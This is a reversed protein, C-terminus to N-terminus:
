ASHVPSPMGENQPRVRQSKSHPPVCFKSKSHFGPSPLAEWYTVPGRRWQPPNAKSIRDPGWFQFVWGLMNGQPAVEVAAIFMFPLVKEMDMNKSPGAIDPAVHVNPTKL